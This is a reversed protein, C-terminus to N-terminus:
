PFTSSCRSHGAYKRSKVIGYGSGCSRWLSTAPTPDDSNKSRGLEFYPLSKSQLLARGLRQVARRRCFGDTLASPVRGPRRRELARQDVRDAIGGM